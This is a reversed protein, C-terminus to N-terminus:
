QGELERWPSVWCGDRYVRVCVFDFVVRAFLEGYVAAASEDTILPLARRNTATDGRM